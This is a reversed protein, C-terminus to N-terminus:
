SWYYKNGTAGHILLQVASARKAIFKSPRCWTASINYVAPACKFGFDNSAQTPVAFYFDVCKPTVKQNGRGLQGAASFSSLFSIILTLTLLLSMIALGGPM